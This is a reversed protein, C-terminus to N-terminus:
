HNPGLETLDSSKTIFDYAGARIAQVATELSGFGTMVVVPVDPQTSVIRQCLETGTMGAMSLDTVVVDFDENRLVRLADDASTKFVVEQESSSLADIIAEGMTPEDDVILIRSVRADGTAHSGYLSQSPRDCQEPAQTELM